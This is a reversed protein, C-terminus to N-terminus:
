FKLNLSDSAFEPFPFKEADRNFADEVNLAFLKAGNKEGGNARPLRAALLRRRRRLVLIVGVEIKTEQGVCFQQVCGDGSSLAQDCDNSIRNGEARDAFTPFQPFSKNVNAIGVVGEKAHGIQGEPRHKVADFQLLRVHQVRQSWLKDRSCLPHITIREKVHKVVGDDHVLGGFSGEHWSWYECYVWPVDRWSIKCTWRRPGWWRRWRWDIRVDSNRRKWRRPQFNGWRNSGKWVQCSANIERDLDRWWFM